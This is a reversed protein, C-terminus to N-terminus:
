VIEVNKCYAAKITIIHCAGRALPCSSGLGVSQNAVWTPLISPYLGSPFAWKTGAIVNRRLGLRLVFTKKRLINDTIKQSKETPISCFFWFFFRFSAMVKANSSAEKETSSFLCTRLDNKETGYLGKNVFCIRDLPAPYQGRERKALMWGDQGRAQDVSYIYKM